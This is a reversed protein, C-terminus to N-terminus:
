AMFLAFSGHASPYSERCPLTNICNTLDKAIAGNLLHFLLFMPTPLPPPPGGGGGGGGGGWYEM